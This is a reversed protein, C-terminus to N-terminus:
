DKNKNSMYNIRETAYYELDVDESKAWSIIFGVIMLVRKKIPVVSMVIKAFSFCNAKFTFESFNRKFEPQLAEFNMEKAAALDLAALLLDAFREETTCRIYLRYNKIVNPKKFLSRSNNMYEYTGRDAVKRLRVAIRLACLYDLLRVLGEGIDSKDWVDANLAHIQKSLEELREKTM